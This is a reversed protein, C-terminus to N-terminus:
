SVVETSANANANANADGNGDGNGNGDGHMGPEGGEGGLEGAHRLVARLIVPGVFEGSVTVAAATALVSDGIAGPFRMAFAVGICMALGGTSLLGFGLWPRAGRAEPLARLGLGSLGKAGARAVITLLVMPLLLRSSLDIRAGALLLAPLLVARETPATMAAIEVRHRSLASLTAGMVFMSALPSMGLKATLGIALMSTGLLLGWSEDLRFERGLLLMVVGGLGLGLGVSIGVWGWAPLHLGAHSPPHLAFLAATALIVVMDDADALEGVLRSLPGRAGHREVVWRVAHRTTEACAVAIGGALLNRDAAPMPSFRLLLLSLAGFITGGTVLTVAAGAVASRLSVRKGDVFGYDLGIVLAVWGVGVSTLADFAQLQSREILGLMPGLLFGLVVYEASSPLGFGRIAHGGFLFSGMYALLLLGMLYWIATM